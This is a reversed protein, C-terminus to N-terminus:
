IAKFGELNSKRSSYVDIKYIMKFSCPRKNGGVELKASAVGGPDKRWFKCGSVKSISEVVCRRMWMRPNVEEINWPSSKLRASSEM